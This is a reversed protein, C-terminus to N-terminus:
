EGQAQAFERRLVNKKTKGSAARPFEESRNDIRVPLKRASLRPRLHDYAKAITKPPANVAIKRALAMARPM